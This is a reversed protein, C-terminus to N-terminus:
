SSSRNYAPPEFLRHSCGVVLGICGTIFGFIKLHLGTSYLQVCAMLVIISVLPLALPSKLRSLKWLHVVLAIYMNLMLAVGVIGHDYLLMFWDNHPEHWIKTQLQRNGHGFILNLNEAKEIAEACLRYIHTRGTDSHLRRNVAEPNAYIFLGGGGVAIAWLLMLVIAGRGRKKIIVAFHLLSSSFGMLILALVAGRKLSYVAGYSILSIAIIKLFNKKLMLAYPFLVVIYYGIYNQPLYRSSLNMADFNITTFNLLAPLWVVLSFIALLIFIQLREPYLYSRLYFFLFLSFWYFSMIWQRQITALNDTFTIGSVCLWFWLLCFSISIWRALQSHRIHILVCLIAFAAQSGNLIKVAIRDKGSGGPLLYEFLAMAVFSLGMVAFPFDFMRRSSFCMKTHSLTLENIGMRQGVQPVM